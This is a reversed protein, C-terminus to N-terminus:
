SGTFLESVRLQMARTVDGVPWSCLALKRVPLIGAVSNCAFLEDAQELQSLTGASVQVALGLAPALTDLVYGRMVGDVGAQSLAPTWLSAGFRAFLNMATLELPEDSGGLLLGDHWGAADVQRRALVQELRNLHKIGALVPQSALRIDCVGLTLGDRYRDEAPLVLPHRRCLLTPSPEAPASYGRGGVGRTLTIKVVADGGLACQLAIQEELLETPLPIGLRAAGSALRERHRPWLPMQGSAMRVTEFLGDGYALGRDESSVLAAAESEATLESM